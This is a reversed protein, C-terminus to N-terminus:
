AKALAYFIEIKDFSSINNKNELLVKNELYKVSNNILNNLKESKYVKQMELM